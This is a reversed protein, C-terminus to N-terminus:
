LTSISNSVELMAQFGESGSAVSIGSTAIYDATKQLSEALEIEAQNAKEQAIKRDEDTLNPQNIKQKMYAVKERKLAAERVQLDLEPNTNKVVVGQLREKSVNSFINTTSDVYRTFIDFYKQQQDLKQTFTPETTFDALRRNFEPAQIFDTLRKPISPLVRIGQNVVFDPRITPKVLPPEEPAVEIKEECYYSLMFDGIVTNSSNYVLVFTGGRVVGAFYEMGPNQSIFNTFLLKEDEAEDKKKIIQDLWDLWQIQTNGILTDFPTTFETKVVDGINLKFQSAATVTEALEPQWSIDTKYAAYNRNLKAAVAEAKQTVTTNRQEADRKLSNANSEGTVNQDVQKKFTDSFQKVENLQHYADQRLLYHFRHLDSYRIAPKKVVKTKDQGLLVSRVSRFLM